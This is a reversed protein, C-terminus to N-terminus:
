EKSTPSCRSRIAAACDVLGVCYDWDEEHLDYMAECVKACAEREEKRVMEILVSVGRPNGVEDWVGSEKILEVDTKTM